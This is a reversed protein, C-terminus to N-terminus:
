EKSIDAVIQNIIDRLDKPDMRISMTHLGANFNVHDNALISKDMIVSIGILNGFPHVSGIACSCVALVEDPTAMRINKKGTIHRLKNADARKDGPVLVLIYDSDAKFVLAKVGTKLEDGRIRAAEESTHVPEHETAIYSINKSDLFKKIELYEKEM